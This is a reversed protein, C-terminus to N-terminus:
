TDSIGLYVFRPWILSRFLKQAGMLHRADRLMADRVKKEFLLSCVSFLDHYAQAVLVYMSSVNGLAFLEVIV